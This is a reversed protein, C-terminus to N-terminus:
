TASCVATVHFRNYRVGGAAVRDIHPTDIGAGFCGLQAFGIDDLVVVLVNPADPAPTPYEVFRPESTAVRDTLRQSQMASSETVRSGSEDRPRTRCSAGM